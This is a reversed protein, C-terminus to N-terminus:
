PHPGAPRRGPRRGPRDRTTAPGISRSIGAIHRTMAQEAAEPDHAAVAAAVALHEASYRDRLDPDFVKARTITWRTRKKARLIQDVTSILFGNGSAEAMARHFLEDWRDWEEWDVARAASTEYHHLVELDAAEARLAALRAVQPEILRRAELLESLTTSAGLAEACSQVSQPRGGVFTGKGVHRWIRGERELEDLGSRLSTRGVRLLECLQRESPLRTHLPFRDSSLIRNLDDAIRRTEGRAEQISRSRAAAM